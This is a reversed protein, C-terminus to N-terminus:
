LSMNLVLLNLKKTGSYRIIKVISDINALKGVEKLYQNFKQNSIPKFRYNNRELILMAQSIFGTFPVYTIKKTKHSTFNWENYTFDTKDFNVIDSFRQGTFCGFCFL